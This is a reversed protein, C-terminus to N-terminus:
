KVRQMITGKKGCVKSLCSIFVIILAVGAILGILIELTKEIEEDNRNSDDSRM